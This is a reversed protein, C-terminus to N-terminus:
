LVKKGEMKMWIQKDMGALMMISIQIWNGSLLNVKSHSSIVWSDAWFM